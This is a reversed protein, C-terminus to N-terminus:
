SALCHDRHSSPCCGWWCVSLFCGMDGYGHDTDPQNKLVQLRFLWRCVLSDGTYFYELVYNHVSSILFSTQTVNQMLMFCLPVSDEISSSVAINYLSHRTWKMSCFPTFKLSRIQRKSGNILETFPLPFIICFVTPSM